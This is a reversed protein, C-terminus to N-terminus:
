ISVGGEELCVKHFSDEGAFFSFFAAKCTNGHKVCAAGIVHKKLKKAHLRCLQLCPGCFLATVHVNCM